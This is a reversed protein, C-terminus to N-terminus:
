VESEISKILERCDKLINDGGAQMFSHDCHKEIINSLVIAFDLLLKINEKDNNM